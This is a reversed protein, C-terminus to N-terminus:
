SRDIIKYVQQRSLGAADAITRMAVWPPRLWSAELILRDRDAKAHDIQAAAVRLEQLIEDTRASDFGGDQTADDSVRDLRPSIDSQNVGRPPAALM